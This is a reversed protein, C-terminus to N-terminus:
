NDYRKNKSKPHEKESAFKYFLRPVPSLIVIFLIYLFTLAPQTTLLKTAM